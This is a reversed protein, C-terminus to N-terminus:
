RVHHGGDDPYADAWRALGDMKEMVDQVTGGSLNEIFARCYEVVAEPQYEGVVLLHHGSVVSADALRRQLWKPTCVQVYFLEFGDLDVGDDDIFGVGLTLLYMFDDAPEGAIPDAWSSLLKGRVVDKM